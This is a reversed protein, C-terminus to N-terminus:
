GRAAARAAILAGAAAVWSVLLFSTGYDGCATYITAMTAPGIMVGIFTYVLSGGIVRGADAPACHRTCEALVVGNWGSMCFGFLCLVSAQVIVPLADLQWLAIMCGTSVAGILALVQFGGFRDGLWGWSVRGLAGCAQVSAAVLGAHVLSWGHDVLMVVTFASLSLQLSSYFFGILALARLPGSGWVLRQEYLFNPWLAITAPREPRPPGGKLALVGIMAFCPVALVALALKWGLMPAMAPLLLSALVGGLPVGAQKISFILSRRHPPTVAGLIQASAPNQVGYGIGIIISALLGVRPTAATLLLLALGFCALALQEVQVPGRHQILTGAVASALTGAAYIISIQYGVYHPALGFDAAVLPAIGTLALATVTSLIQITTTTALAGAISPAITPTPASTYAPQSM